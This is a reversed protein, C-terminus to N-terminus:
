KCTGTGVHQHLRGAPLWKKCDQCEAIVRHLRRGPVMQSLLKLKTGDEYTVEAEMEKPIPSSPPLGFLALVDRTNLAWGNAKKLYKVNYHRAM